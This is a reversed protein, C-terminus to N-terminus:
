FNTDIQLPQQEELPILQFQPRPYGIYTRMQSEKNVRANDVLM